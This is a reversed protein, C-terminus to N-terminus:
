SCSPSSTCPRRSACGERRLVTLIWTVGTLLGVLKTVSGSGPVAYVSELPLSAVLVLVLWYTLRSM